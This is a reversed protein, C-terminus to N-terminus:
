TLGSNERRQAQPAAIIREHSIARLSDLYRTVRHWQWGVSNLIKQLHFRYDQMDGDDIMETRTVRGSEEEERVSPGSGRSGKTNEYRPIAGVIDAFVRVVALSWCSATLLYQALRRWRLLPVPDISTVFCM